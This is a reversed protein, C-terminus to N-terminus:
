TVNFAGELKDEGKDSNIVVVTWKGEPYGKVDKPIKLKCKILNSSSTVDTCLIEFSDRILKVEKALEFNRGFINLEIDKDREGDTPNINRIIPISMAPVSGKIGQIATKSGFYFGAVAVVLTSVTTIIQKAIDQSAQTKPIIRGVDYTVNNFFVNRHFWAIEGQPIENFQQQTIGMYVMPESNSVQTYLVLSSMMFILILSLAIVAQMSGEPLGLTQTRDALALSKYIVASFTLAVILAIVGTILMVSLMGEPTKFNM